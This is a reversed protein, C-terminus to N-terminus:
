DKLKLFKYQYTSYGPGCKQIRVNSKRAASRPETEACATKGSKPLLWQSQLTWMSPLKEQTNPNKMAIENSTWYMLPDDSQCSAFKLKGLNRRDRRNTNITLCQDTNVIKFKKYNPDAVNDIKTWQFNLPNDRFPQTEDCSWPTAKPDPNLPTIVLNGEDNTGLCRSTGSQILFENEDLNNPPTIETDKVSVRLHGALQDDRVIIGCKKNRCVYSSHCDANTECVDNLRGLRKIPSPVVIPTIVLQPPAVAVPPTEIELDKTEPEEVVVAEETEPEEVVVAEETKSLLTTLDFVKTFHLIALIVILAVIVVVASM